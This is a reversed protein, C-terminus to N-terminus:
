KSSALTVSSSSAPSDFASGIQYRKFGLVQIDSVGVADKVATKVVDRVKIKGQAGLMFLQEMMVIEGLNKNLAGQARKEIIEPTVTHKKRQEDPKKAEIELMNERLLKLEKEIFAADIDARNTFIPTAAAAHMALQKGLARIPELDVGEDGKVSLAVVTALTGANDSVKNHVYGSVVGVEGDALRLGGVRRVSVNERVAAAIDLVSQAVTKPQQETADPATSCNVAQFAALTSEVSSCVVPDLTLAAVALRETLGYFAENRAVFDTESSVEVVCAQRGDPSISLAVLGDNAERSASKKAAAMGKKKLWATAKEIDGEVGEAQLARKCEMMPSGTLDRLEKVLKAPIAIVSAAAASFSRTCLFASRQALLSTARQM